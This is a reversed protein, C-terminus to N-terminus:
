SPMVGGWGGNVEVGETRGRTVAVVCGSVSVVGVILWSESM